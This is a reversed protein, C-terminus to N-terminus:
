TPTSRSQGVRMISGRSFNNSEEATMRGAWGSSVAVEPLLASFEVGDVAVGFANTRMVDEHWEGGTSIAMDALRERHWTPLGEFAAELLAPNEERAVGDPGSTFGLVFPTERIIIEGASITRDAMAGKGKNPLDSVKYARRDPGPYLQWSPTEGWPESRSSLIGAVSSAAEPTAVLSIGAEGSSLYTYVCYKSTANGEAPYVCHPQYAWPVRAGSKAATKDDVITPCAPNPYSVFVSPIWPCQQLAVSLAAASVYGGWTLISSIVTM